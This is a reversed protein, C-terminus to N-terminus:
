FLDPFFEIQGKQVYVMAFSVDNERESIGSKMFFYEALSRMIRIKKDNFVELPHVLQGKWAKVEVFYLVNEKKCIIDIEGMRNRFNRELIEFGSALLFEAAQEEGTKGTFYTSMNPTLVSDLSIIPHVQFKKHIINIKQM